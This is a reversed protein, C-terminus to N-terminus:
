KQNEEEEGLDTPEAGRTLQTLIRAIIKKTKNIDQVNKLGEGSVKFRLLRLEERKEQLLEMLQKESKNKLESFDM